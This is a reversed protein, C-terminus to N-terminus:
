AVNCCTQAPMASCKRAALVGALLRREPSLNGLAHPPAAADHPGDKVTRRRWPPDHDAGGGAPERAAQAQRPGRQRPRVHDSRELGTRDHGGIRRDAVHARRGADRPRRRSAVALRPVGAACVRRSWRGVATPVSECRRRRGQGIFPAAPPTYPSSCPAFTGPAAVTGIRCEFAGAAISAFEFTPTADGTVGVPGSAISPSPQGARARMVAAVPDETTGIGFRGIGFGDLGAFLSDSSEAIQEWIVYGDIGAELQAAPKADFRQARRALTAATTTGTRPVDDGVDAPIGAEGVFIPKGLANCQAIRFAIGNFEDGPMAQHPWAYYDHVECVDVVEHLSAYELHSAGCQGSGITGLSVLHNPDADRLEARMENAFARLAAAGGPGCGSLPAM